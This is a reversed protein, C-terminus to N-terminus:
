SRGKLRRKRDIQDPSNPSPSVGSTGSESEPTETSPGSEKQGIPSQSGADAVEAKEPPHDIIWQRSREGVIGIDDAEPDGLAALWQDISVSKDDLGLNKRARDEDTEVRSVVAEKQGTPQPWFRKGARSLEDRLGGLAVAIKEFSVVLREEREEDM